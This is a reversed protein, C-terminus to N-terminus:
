ALIEFYVFNWNRVWAEELCECLSSQCKVFYGYWIIFCIPSHWCIVHWIMPHCVWNSHLKCTFQDGWLTPSWEFRPNYRDIEGTNGALDFMPYLQRTCVVPWFNSLIQLFHRFQPIQRGYKFSCHFICESLYLCAQYQNM